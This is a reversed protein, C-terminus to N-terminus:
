YNRVEWIVMRRPITGVYESFVTFEIACGDYTDLLAILDDLDPPDLYGRLLMLANLGITHFSQEELALRLATQKFSYNFYLGGPTRTVEGQIVRAGAPAEYFRCSPPMGSKSIATQVENIPVNFLKRNDAVLMSRIYVNGTYGSSALDELSDWHQVTNGFCGSELLISMQVKNRITAM